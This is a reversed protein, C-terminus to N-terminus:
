KQRKTVNEKDKNVTFIQSLKLNQYVINSCIESLSDIITEKFNIDVNLNLQSIRAELETFQLNCIAFQM